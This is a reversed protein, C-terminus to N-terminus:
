PIGEVAKSRLPDIGVLASCMRLIRSKIRSFYSALSEWSCIAM